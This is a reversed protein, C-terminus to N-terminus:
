KLRDELPVDYDSLPKRTQSRLWYTIGGALMAALGIWMPDINPFNVPTVFALVTALIGAIVQVHGWWITKSQIYRRM